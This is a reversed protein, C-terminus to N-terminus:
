ALEWAELPVTQGALKHTCDGLFEIQGDRVFSHCVLPYPEFPEGRLIADREADTIPVTGRVLISPTFTPRVLDGNWGWTAGTLENRHGDVSVGHACECGPCHFMVLKDTARHCVEM